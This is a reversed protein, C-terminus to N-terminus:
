NEVVGLDIDLFTYILSNRPEGANETFRFRLSAVCLFPPGLQLRDM